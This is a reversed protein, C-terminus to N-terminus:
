ASAVAELGEAAHRSVLALIEELLAELSAERRRAVQLAELLQDILAHESEPDILAYAGKLCDECIYLDDIVQKVLSESDLVPGDWAAEFDIHKKDPQQNFCASCHSPNPNALKM